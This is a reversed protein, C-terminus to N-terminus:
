GIHLVLSLLAMKRSSLCRTNFMTLSQNATSYANGAFSLIMGELLHKFVNKFDLIM